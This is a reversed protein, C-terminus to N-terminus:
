ICSKIIACLKSIATCLEFPCKQKFDIKAKLSDESLTVEEASSSLCLISHVDQKADCGFGILHVIKLLENNKISKIMMQYKEVLTPDSVLYDLDDFYFGTCIRSGVAQWSAFIPLYEMFKSPSILIIKKEKSISAVTHASERSILSVSDVINAEQSINFKEWMSPLIIDM